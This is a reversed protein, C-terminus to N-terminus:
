KRKRLMLILPTGQFGLADRFCNELYRKYSFHMRKPDNVFLALAPPRVSTQSIYKIKLEKGKRSPAPRAAM